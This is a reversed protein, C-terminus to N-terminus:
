ATTELESDKSDNGDGAVHGALDAARFATNWLRQFYDQPRRLDLALADDLLGLGALAKELGDLARATPEFVQHLYDATADDPAREAISNWQERKRRWYLLDAGSMVFNGCGECNLKWPCAGGDVVPQFTCFGGEAPTSRRSLDLALAEAQQRNMPRVPSSLLTGPSPAGPGAVWIHQLIDEIESTAVKAYHETMRISVHGLYRRIHGLTAGHALLRTALSHRAQHPVYHGLQLGNIWQRFSSGFWATSMPLQGDRNRTGTPFLAMAAREQPTPSRGGQSDTFRALTKDHRERLRQYIPEPIRIAQDYNGVKAQDHWLMPLGNYRGTCELRLGVVESARRGTAVITEWMDRLGRDNPDYVDALQRLNTDDALARAVEDPFPSRTRANVHGGHPMATIVSRDLGIRGAQSTELTSRLLQRGASFLACRAAATILGRQGKVRGEAVLMPLGLRERRRVETVFHEVHAAQLVTPDHGGEPAHQELFAGFEICFRRLQDLWNGTRPVQPSRLREAAYDWLLDRLWRQQVASFDVHSSRRQFRVGFHDTEIFGADRTSAPSLYILHLEGVIERVILQSGGILRALDVELLSNVGIRRSSATMAQIWPLKWRRRHGGQAHAHLGWQIEARLLPPLGRLNVQGTVAVPPETAQWRRFAAEDAYQVPVPYGRNEYRNFWRDPLATGGPEGATRYRRAHPDCL